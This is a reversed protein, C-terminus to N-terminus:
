RPVENREMLGKIEAPALAASFIYVEDVGGRTHHNRVAQKTRSRGEGKLPGIRKPVPGLTARAAAQKGQAIM